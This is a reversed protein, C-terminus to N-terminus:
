EDDGGAEPVISLLNAQRETDTMLRTTVLEGTDQRFISVIGKKFDPTETVAVEREEEGTAICQAAHAGREEQAKFRGRFDHLVQSKEERLSKLKGFVDACERGFSEIESPNLKVPLKRTVVPLKPKKM